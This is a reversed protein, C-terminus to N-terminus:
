AKKWPIDSLGPMPPDLALLDQMDRFIELAPATYPLRPDTHAPEQGTTQTPQPADIVLKETRLQGM